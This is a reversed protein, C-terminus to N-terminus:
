ARPQVKHQYKAWILFPMVGVASLTRVNKACSISSPRRLNLSYRFLRLWGFQDCVVLVQGFLAHVVQFEFQRQSHDDESHRIREQHDDATKPEILTAEKQWEYTDRGKQRNEAPQKEAPDLRPGRGM